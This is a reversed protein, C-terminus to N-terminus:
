SLSKDITSTEEASLVRPTFRVPRGPQRLGTITNPHHGVRAAHSEPKQGVPDTQPASAQLRHGPTPEGPEVVHDSSPSTAHHESVRHPSRRCRRAAGAPVPGRCTADAGVTHGAKSSIPGPRTFLTVVARAANTARIPVAAPRTGAWCTAPVSGSDITAAPCVLRRRRALM